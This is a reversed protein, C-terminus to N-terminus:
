EILHNYPSHELSKVLIAEPFEFLAKKAEQKNAFTLFVTSGTGSLKPNGISKTSLFIEKIEPYKNKAWEEFTNKSNGALFRRKTIHGKSSINLQNFAEMTSIKTKPFFLLYWEPKLDINSFIEGRGESWATQGHIFFPVDSGLELGLKLLEKKSLNIDWFHNLAILTAAADSSGGGLGKQIPINKKLSIIVGKQSSTRKKLLLAAEVVINNIIQESNEKLRISNNICEFELDDYIDILRFVTNLDHFGDDRKRLIELHLNLKAPTKLFM